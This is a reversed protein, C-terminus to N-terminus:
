GNALHCVMRVVPVVSTCAGLASTADVRETCLHPLSTALHSLRCSGARLAGSALARLSALRAVRTTTRRVGCVVSPHVCAVPARVDEELKTQLSSFFDMIAQLEEKLKNTTAAVREAWEKDAQEDLEISAKLDQELTTTAQQEDAIKSIM